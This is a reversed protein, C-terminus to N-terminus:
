RDQLLPRAPDVKGLTEFGHPQFYPVFGQPPHTAEWASALGRLPGRLRAILLNGVQGSVAWAPQLFFEEERADGEGSIALKLNRAFPIGKHSLVSKTFSAVRCRATAQNKRSLVKFKAQLYEAGTACHVACRVELGITTPELGVLPARFRYLRGNRM